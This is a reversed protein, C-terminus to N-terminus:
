ARLDLDDGTPPRITAAEIFLPTTAAAVTPGSSQVNYGSPHTAILLVGAGAFARRRSITWGNLELQELLLEGVTDGIPHLGVPEALADPPEAIDAAAYSM